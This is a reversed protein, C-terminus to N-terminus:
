AGARGPRTGVLLAIGDSGHITSGGGLRRYGCVARSRAFCGGLRGQGVRSDTRPRHGAIRNSNPLLFNESTSPLSRNEVIIASDAELHLPRALSQGPNHCPRVWFQRLAARRQKGVPVVKYNIKTSAYQGAGGNAGINNFISRSPKTEAAPLRRPATQRLRGVAMRGFDCWIRTVTPTM